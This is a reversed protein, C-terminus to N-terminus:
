DLGRLSAEIMNLQESFETRIPGPSRLQQRAIEQEFQSVISKIFDRDDGRSEEYLREARAILAQNEAQERPHLKLSQLEQFRMKLDRASLGSNDNFVEAYVKGTSLVTIEVQLAGNVDYTLRIDISEKGKPGRPIKAEITGLHVNNEPRLNEGQYVQVAIASQNKTVTSLTINRSIPVIANREIIASVSLRSSPDESDDVTAVGLTYPCVDTMVVDRLAGNRQILGAQVAAGLGVTTDPDIDILPLRGFMRAVLSRVMPMRTAGGVLVIANFSSPSLEADRVARETPLRLRQLLSACALEFEQRTINGKLRQNDLEFSYSQEHEKTIACKLIEAQRLLQARQHGNLTNLKLQHRNALLNEVVSTFDDGGLRTDGTTAKIEMIDDYKDLISVDFTGGGLDFVLYKGEKSDSLGHALAAATPENVLREVILGALQGAIMTAKRQQDNFYAPVSIVAQTVEKGL